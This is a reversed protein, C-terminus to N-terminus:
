MGLCDTNTATRNAIMLIKMGLGVMFKVPKKALTVAILQLQLASVAHALPAVPGVPIVVM